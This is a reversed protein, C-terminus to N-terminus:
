IISILFKLGRVYEDKSYSFNAFNFQTKQPDLTELFAVHKILNDKLNPLGLEDVIREEFDVKKLAEIPSQITKRACSYILSFIFFYTFLLKM